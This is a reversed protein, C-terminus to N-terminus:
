AAINEPAVPTISHVRWKDPQVVCELRVDAVTAQAGAFDRYPVLVQLWRPDSQPVLAYTCLVRTTEGPPVRERHVERGLPERDLGDGVVRVGDKDIVAPGTGVNRLPVGVCIRGAPFGVYVQRWDWLVTHGGPFDLQPTKNPDLDSQGSATETVDILLPRHTSEIQQQTMKQAAQTAERSIKLDAEISRKAYKSGVVAITALALTLLALAGTAIATVETWDTGAALQGM